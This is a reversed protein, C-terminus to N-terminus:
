IEKISKYQVETGSVPGKENNKMEEEQDKM